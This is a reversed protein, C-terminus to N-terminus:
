ARVFSKINNNLKGIPVKTGCDPCASQKTLHNKKLMMGHREILLKNCSPCYTSEYKHGAANGIYVYKLGEKKAIEYAKELLKIDPSPLQLKYSPFFRILHFPTEPGLNDVMWRCLKKLDVMSEGHQPVLLNTVEIFVKNKKYALLADYIPQVDPVSSLEAYAQPNGSSKFDIVAADLNKSIKKIAESSTYGNTVWCNFLGAKTALKACDSAFEYFMTPEVYTYCVGQCGAVKAERVVKEPTWQEGEVSKWLQSLEANCCFKCLFNCGVTSISFTDSGPAFHFFPKKQIPDVGVATLKGYNLPYLKGGLNQRVRCFGTKNDDIKCNRACLHCQVSKKDLPKWFEALKM